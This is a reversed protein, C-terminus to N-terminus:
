YFIFKCVKELLYAPATRAGTLVDTMYQHWDTVTERIEAIMECGYVNIVNVHM